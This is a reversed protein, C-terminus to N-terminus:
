QCLRNLLFRLALAGASRGGGAGRPFAGGEHRVSGQQLKPAAHVNEAHGVGVRLGLGGESDAGAPGGRAGGRGRVSM